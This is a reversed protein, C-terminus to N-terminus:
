AMSRRTSTRSFPDELHVSARTFSTALVFCPLMVTMLYPM